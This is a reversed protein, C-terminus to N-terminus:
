YSSETSCVTCDNCELAGDGNVDTVYQSSTCSICDGPNASDEFYGNFDDCKCVTDATLSCPSGVVKGIPCTSCVTCM